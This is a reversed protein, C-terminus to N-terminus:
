NDKTRYNTQKQKVKTREDTETDTNDAGSPSADQWIIKDDNHGFCIKSCLLIVTVILLIAVGGVVWLAIRIGDDGVNDGFTKGTFM